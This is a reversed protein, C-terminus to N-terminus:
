LDGGDPLVACGARPSRLGQDCVAAILRRPLGPARAARAGRRARGGAAPRMSVPHLWTSRVRPELAPRRRAPLFIPRARDLANRAARLPELLLVRQLCQRHGPQAGLEASRRAPEAAEA